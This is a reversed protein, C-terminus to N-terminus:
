LGIEVGDRELVAVMARIAQLRLRTAATREIRDREDRERIRERVDAELTTVDDGLHAERAAIAVERGGTVTMVGGDVACYGAAGAPTRWSVLSPLLVTLFDAHGPLVGFGGSADEARVSAIETDLLIATPDTIRLRM